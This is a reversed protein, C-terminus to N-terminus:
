KEPGIFKRGAKRDGIFALLMVILIVVTAAIFRKGIMGKFLANYFLAGYVGGLFPGVVPIWSYNWNSNRKGHIPLLFHAIRPGLDRAPNIAYGTTGGLSIGVSLVILGVVLPKLGQTFENVGLAMIGMVLIFTGIIESVLNSTNHRIAPDTCFVALKLNADDTVRWHPLYHFYVLVAGLFAGLMQASIYVPVKEWPFEGISASALTVAPNLHAGSFKGVAYIAITVALGWGVAIVMWGSNQSKTKNLVVGGVVGGGLIILLMTGLLEGLFPSM